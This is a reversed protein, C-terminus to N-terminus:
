QVDMAVLSVAGCRKAQDACFIDDPNSSFALMERKGMKLIHLVVCSSLILKLQGPEKLGHSLSTAESGTLFFKTFVHIIHNVKIM